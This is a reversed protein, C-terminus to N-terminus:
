WPPCCSSTVMRPHAPALSISAAGGGRWKCHSPQPRLSHVNAKPGSQNRAACLWLPCMCLTSVSSCCCVARRLFGAFLLGPGLLHTRIVKADELECRLGALQAKLDTIELAQAENVHRAELERQVLVDVLSRLSVQPGLTTTSCSPRLTLPSPLRTVSPPKLPGHPPPTTPCPHPCPHPPPSRRPLEGARSSPPKPCRRTRIVCQADPQAPRSPLCYPKTGLGPELFLFCWLASVDSSAFTLARKCPTPRRPQV